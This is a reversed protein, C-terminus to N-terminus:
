GIAQMGLVVAGLIWVVVLLSQMSTLQFRGRLHRVKEFETRGWFIYFVMMALPVVMLGARVWPRNGGLDVGSFRLVTLVIQLEFLTLFTLVCALTYTSVSPPQPM